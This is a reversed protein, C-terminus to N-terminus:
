ILEVVTRRRDILRAVAENSQRLYDAATAELADARAHGSKTSDYDRTNALLQARARAFVAARYLIVKESVEGYTRAPVEALSAAAQRARWAGISANVEIMASQIAAAIRAPDFTDGQGTQAHFDALSLDPFWGDNAVTEPADAAPDTSPIFASM